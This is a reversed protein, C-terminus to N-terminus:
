GPIMTMINQYKKFKQDLKEKGWTFRLTIM